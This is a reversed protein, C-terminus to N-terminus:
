ASETRHNAAHHKRIAEYSRDLAVNHSPLQEEIGGRDTCKSCGWSAVYGSRSYYVNITYEIEDLPHIRCHVFTLDPM